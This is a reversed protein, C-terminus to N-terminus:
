NAAALRADIEERLLSFDIPKTLLGTAGNEVDELAQRNARGPDPDDIRQVVTWCTQPRVRGSPVADRAREYLPEIRIGDDTASALTEDFDAGRLAKAVLALWGDRDPVALEATRIVDPKM